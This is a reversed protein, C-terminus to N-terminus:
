PVKAIIGRYEAEPFAKLTETRVNGKSGVGLIVSAAVEDSPAEIIVVMDYRGLTLYFGIVKGGAAEVAKKFAEYRQPSDKVNRIGQDTWNALSIYIPM